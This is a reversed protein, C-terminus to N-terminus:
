VVMYYLRLYMSWKKLLKNERKHNKDEFLEALSAHPTNVCAEHAEAVQAKITEIRKHVLRALFNEKM